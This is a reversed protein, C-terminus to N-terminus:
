DQLPHNTSIFILQKKEKAIFSGTDDGGALLMMVVLMFVYNSIMGLDSSTHVWVYVNGAPVTCRIYKWTYTINVVTVLLAHIVVRGLEGTHPLSVSYAFLRDSASDACRMCWVGFIGLVSVPGTIANPPDYFQVFQM